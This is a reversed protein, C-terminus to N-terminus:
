LVVVLKVTQWLPAPLQAAEDCQATLLQLFSARMYYAQVSCTNIIRRHQAHMVRMANM